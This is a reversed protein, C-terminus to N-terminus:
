ERDFEGADIRRKLDKCAPPVPLGRYHEAATPMTYNPLEEPSFEIVSKPECYFVEVKSPKGDARTAGVGRLHVERLDSKYSFAIGDSGIEFDPVRPVDKGDVLVCVTAPDIAVSNKLQFQSKVELKVAEAEGIQRMGTEYDNKSIDVAVGENDRILDLYGYGVENESFYEPFKEDPAPVTPVSAEETYLIGSILLPNAKDTGPIRQLERLKEYVSRSTVTPNGDADRCYVSNAKEEVTLGTNLYQNVNAKPEVGPPYNVGYSCLDNEDSIFIVALAADPRFFGLRRNESLLPETVGKDLSYLGAEGGDTAGEVRMKTLKQVLLRNLQQWDRETKTSKLVAAEGATVILKGALGTSKKNASDYSYDAHAAMVAFRYDTGSPLAEVFKRVGKAIAGRETELSPSTDAVFLIDIKALKAPPQAFEGKQCTPCKVGQPKAVNPNHADRCIPHRASAAVDHMDMEAFTEPQPEEPEAIPTSVDRVPEFNMPGHPEAFDPADEQAQNPVPQAGKHSAGGCAVLAPLVLLAAALFLAPSDFDTKV